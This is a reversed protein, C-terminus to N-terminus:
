RSELIPDAKHVVQVIGYSECLSNKLRIAKRYAEEVEPVTGETEVEGIVVSVRYVFKKIVM